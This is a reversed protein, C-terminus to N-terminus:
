LDLQDRWRPASGQWTGGPFQEELFASLSKDLVPDNQDHGETCVVRAEQDEVGDIYWSGDAALSLYLVPNAEVPQGCDPQKCLWRGEHDGDEPETNSM